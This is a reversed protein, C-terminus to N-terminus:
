DFAIKYRTIKSKSHASPLNKVDFLHEENIEKKKRNDKVTTTGSTEIIDMFDITDKM